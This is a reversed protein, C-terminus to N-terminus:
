RDTEAGRGGTDDGNDGGDVRVLRGREGPVEGAAASAGGPAPARGYKEYLFELRSKEALPVVFIGHSKQTRLFLKKRLLTGIWKNTVNHEYERGYREVFAAAIEKIAVSCAGTRAFLDRIVELLQAEVEMGRETTLRWQSRLALAGLEARARDEEVISLLPTFIQALRPEIGADSLSGIPRAM